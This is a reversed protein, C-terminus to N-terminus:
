VIIDNFTNNNTKACTVCRDYEGCIVCHYCKEHSQGDKQCEDCFWGGYDDYIRGTPVTYRLFHRGDSCSGMERASQEDLRQSRRRKKAEV